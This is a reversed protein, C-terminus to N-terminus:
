CWYQNVYETAKRKSLSLETKVKEVTMEKSFGVEECTNVLVKIVLQIGEQVGQKVGQKVGKREADKVIEDLAKCMNTEEEEKETSQTFTLYKKIGKVKTCVDIVDVASKPIRSFYDENGRIFREYKSKSDEYKMLGLVYKLDSDMEEIAKIPIHRMNVIHIKYDQFMKKMGEPIGEMNVMDRLSIPKKWKEKGWYLILNLMPVLRNEKKFRYKYDDDKDYSVGKDENKQQIEEIQRAYELCDMELLRWPFTLNITEQNEIGLHYGRQGNEIRKIIDRQRFSMKGRNNKIAYFGEKTYWEWGEPLKEKLYYELVSQIRETKSMYVNLVNNPEGMRIREASCLSCYGVIDM